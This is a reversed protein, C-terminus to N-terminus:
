GTFADNRARRSTAQVTSPDRQRQRRTYGEELMAREKAMSQLQDEVQRNHLLYREYKELFEHGKPTAFYCSGNEPCVVLETKQAYDLYKKLM